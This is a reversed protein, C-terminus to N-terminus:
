VPAAASCAAASWLMQKSTTLNGSALVTKRIEISALAVIGTSLFRERWITNEQRLVVFEIQIECGSPDGAIENDIVVRLRVQGSARRITLTRTRFAKKVRM